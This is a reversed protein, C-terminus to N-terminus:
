RVGGGSSGAPPDLASVRYFGGQKKLELGHETLITRLLAGLDGKRLQQPGIITVTKGALITPNFVMNQETVCSVFRVFDALPADRIDISVLPQNVLPKCPIVLEANGVPLGPAKEEQAAGSGVGLIVILVCLILLFIPKM